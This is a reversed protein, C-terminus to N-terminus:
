DKLAECRRMIENIKDRFERIKDLPILISGMKIWEEKNKRVESIKIYEGFENELLNVYIKRTPMSIIQFDKDHVKKHNPLYVSTNGYKVEYIENEYLLGLLHKSITERSLNLSKKIDSITVGRPNKVIFNLIKIKNQEEKEAPRM